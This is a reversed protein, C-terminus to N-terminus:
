NYRSRMEIKNSEKTNVAELRHGIEHRQDRDLGGPVM